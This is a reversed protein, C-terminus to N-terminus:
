PVDGNKIPFSGIEIHDNELAIYCDNCFPLMLSKFGDKGVQSWEDGPDGESGPNVPQLHHLWLNHDNSLVPGLQVQSKM